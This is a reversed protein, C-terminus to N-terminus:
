NERGGFPSELTGAGIRKGFGGLGTLNIMVIYSREDQEDVYGLELSWCQSQYLLGFGKQIDDKDFLNREYDAYGSFANTIKVKASTYISEQTDVSYRYEAYLTDGRSDSISIAENHSSFRSEYTDYYGEARFSLYRNPEFEFLGYVDSFPEPDDDQEAQIDYSQTLEFRCVQRYSYQSGDEAGSEPNTERITFWNILSYTLLNREGIRDVSDFFPNDDQDIDPIYEYTVKPFFTHKLRDATKGSLRFVRFVESSLDVRLDYIGRSDDTDAAGEEENYVSYATGRLGVSPEITIAKIPKWPLYFRPYVDVRHSGEGDQRYFNVYESTLDYYFVSDMIRQKSGTFDVFPMQQLTRDEELWRRAIVDDNWRAEANLSFKTWTRNINLRNLRTTDDFTDIERNFARRFYEKTQDFNSYGYRFETLYDQDSVIDLDLQAKFDAGLEQDQKMRFWYRDTNPRLFNDGTYGYDESNTGTGDDVQQDELYDFMAAGKSETDLVYRFEGGFKSGRKDMYTYYATADAQDNIAWFYPQAYEFGRRDSSGFQPVLLGSQRETKAPFVFFPTYFVPVPGAKLAAHQVYGYGDVTVKVKRGTIQWPPRDGDCTTLSAKEGEYTDKGTKRLRNGSIYFHNEKLFIRGNTLTGTETNLDLALSAGTMVDEGATLVVNGKAYATNTKQDFRVFDAVLKRDGRTISANGRAVYQDAKDDYNIEDATIHWPTEEGETGLLQDKLNEAAIVPMATLLLIALTMLFFRIPMTGPPSNGAAPCPTQTARRPRNM